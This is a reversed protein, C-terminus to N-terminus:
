RPPYRELIKHVAEKIRRQKEEPSADPKVEAQASGRWVLQQSSADILDLILSGEEYQRVHTTTTAGWATPGYPYNQVTSVDMKGQLAVHYAVLLDPKATPEHQLGKTTLESAVAERIRSHLLSSQLRPDNGPPEVRTLWSYTRYASFNARPDYDSAIEMTSCASTVVLSFATLFLRTLGGRKNMQSMNTGM